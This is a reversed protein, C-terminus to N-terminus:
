RLSGEPKTPLCLGSSDCSLLLSKSDSCIARYQVNGGVAGAVKLESPQCGLIRAAKNAEVEFDVQQLNGSVGQRSPSSRAGGEPSAIKEKVDATRKTEAIRSGSPAFAPVQSSASAITSPSPQSIPIRSKFAESWAVFDRVYRDREGDKAIRDRHFPSNAWVTESSDLGQLAPNVTITLTLFRNPLNQAITSQLVTNPIELGEKIMWSRSEANGTGTLFRVVHNVLLCNVVTGGSDYPNRYLTDTRKCPNDVSLSTISGPLVNKSAEIRIGMAVQNGVRHMLVYDLRIPAMHQSTANLMRMEQEEARFVLWDGAPLPISLRAQGQGVVISDRFITGPRVAVDDARVDTFGTLACAVFIAAPIKKM